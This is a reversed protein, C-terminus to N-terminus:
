RQAGCSGYPPGSPHLAQHVGGVCAPQGDDQVDDVVVEARVAVPEATVPRVERAGMGGGPAVRHVEVLLARLLDACEDDLVRQHPQAVVVHVPQAEIGDVGDGVVTGHVNKFLHSTGYFGQRGM